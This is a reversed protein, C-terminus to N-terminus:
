APRRQRDWAVALMVHNFQAPMENAVKVKYIANIVTKPAVDLARAVSKYHGLECLADLIEAQRTTAKIQPKKACHRVGQCSRPMECKECNKFDPRDTM